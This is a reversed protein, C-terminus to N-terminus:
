EDRAEEARARLAAATLALAPTAAHVDSVDAPTIGSGPAFLSACGCNQYPPRQTFDLSWYWGAPVLSAAADLFAHGDILRFLSSYLGLRTAVTQLIAHQEHAAAAEVRAALNLLTDRDM